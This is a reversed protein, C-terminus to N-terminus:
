DVSGSGGGGSGGDRQALAIRGSGGRQQREKGVASGGCRRIRYYWSMNCTSGGVFLDKLQMTQLYYPLLCPKPTPVVLEVAGIMGGLTPTVVIRKRPADDPWLYHYPGFGGAVMILPFHSTLPSVLTLILGTLTDYFYPINRCSIQRSFWHKLVWMLSTNNYSLNLTHRGHDM